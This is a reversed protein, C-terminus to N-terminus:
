KVSYGKGEMCATYARLYLWLLPNHCIEKLLPKLFTNIKKMVKDRNEKFFFMTCALIRESIVSKVVGM